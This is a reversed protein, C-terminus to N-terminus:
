FPLDGYGQPQQQPQQTPQQPQMAAQQAMWANMQQQPSPMAPQPQPAMATPAQQVTTFTFVTVDTFYSGPKTASERSEPRPEFEIVSGVMPIETPQKKWFTVALKRPYQEGVEELLVSDKWWEGRASTGSQRGIVQIVQYRRM